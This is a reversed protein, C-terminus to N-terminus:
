KPPQQDEATLPNDQDVRQDGVFLVTDLQQEFEKLRQATDHVVLQDGVRIIADPLPMVQTDAGRRIRNVKM